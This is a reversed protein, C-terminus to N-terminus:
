PKADEANMVIAFSVSTVHFEPAVVDGEPACTSFVFSVADNGGTDAALEQVGLQPAVLWQQRKDLIGLCVKGRDLTGNARALLRHHAPVPVSPSVLQYGGAANGTVAHGDPTQAVSVGKMRAWLSLDPAKMPLAPLGASSGLML